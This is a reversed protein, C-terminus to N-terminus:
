RRPRPNPSAALAVVKVTPDTALVALVRELETMLAISLANRAQPRNLMLTAIEAEAHTLLVPEAEPM